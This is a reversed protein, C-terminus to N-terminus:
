CNKIGRVILIAYGPIFLPLPISPASPSGPAPEEIVSEEESFWKATHYCLSFDM